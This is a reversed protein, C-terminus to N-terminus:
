VNDITEKRLNKELEDIFNRAEVMTMEPNRERLVRMAKVKHGHEILFKISPNKIEKTYISM